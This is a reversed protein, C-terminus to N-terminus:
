PCPRSPRSSATPVAPAESKELRRGEERDQHCNEGSGLSSSPIERKQRGEPGRKIWEVFMVWHRTSALYGASYKPCLSAGSAMRLSVNWSGRGPWFHGQECLFKGTVRRDLGEWPPVTGYDGTRDAVGLSGRGAAM